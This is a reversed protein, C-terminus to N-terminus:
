LGEASANEMYQTFVEHLKPLHKKVSLPRGNEGIFCHYTKGACRLDGTKLDKVTYSFEVRTGTYASVTIDMEVTEGFRTMSKYEAEARLVPSMVGNEEMLAYGFQLEELLYTRGEEFWRIYNSHHVCGMQDTEYYQVKHKYPKKM